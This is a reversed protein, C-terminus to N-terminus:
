YLGNNEDYNPDYDEKMHQLNIKTNSHTYIGYMVPLVGVGATALIELTQTDKGLAIMAMTFLILVIAIFFALFLIKKSTKMRRKPKGKQEEMIELRKKIEAKTLKDVDNSTIM